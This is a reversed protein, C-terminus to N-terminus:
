LLQAYAEILAEYFATSQLLRIATLQMSSREVCAVPLTNSKSTKIRAQWSIRHVVSGNPFM